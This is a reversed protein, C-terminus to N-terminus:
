SWRANLVATAARAPSSPKTVRRVVSADASGHSSAPTGSTSDEAGPATTSTPNSECPSGVTSSGAAGGPEGANCTRGRASSSM